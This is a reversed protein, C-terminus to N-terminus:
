RDPDLGDRLRLSCSSSCVHTFGFGLIEGPVITLDTSVIALGQESLAAACDPQRAKRARALRRDGDRGLLRQTLATAQGVDEIAVVDSHPQIRVETKRGLISGLVDAANALDRLEEGVCSDDDERGENRGVTGIAISHALDHTLAVEDFGPDLGADLGALAAVDLSEVLLRPRALNRLERSDRRGIFLGLGSFQDEIRIALADVLADRLQDSVELIVQGDGPSDVISFEDPLNIGNRLQAPLYPAIWVSNGPIATPSQSTETPELTPQQTEPAATETVIFQPDADPTPTIPSLPQFPTLTITSPPFTLQNGEPSEQLAQCSTLLIGLAISLLIFLGLRPDLRLPLTM